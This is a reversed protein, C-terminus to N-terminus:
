IMGQMKMFALGVVVVLIVIFVLLKNIGGGGGKIKTVLGRVGRMTLSEHLMIDAEEASISHYPNFEELEMSELVGGDTLKYFVYYGKVRGYWNRETFIKHLVTDKNLQLSQENHTINLKMDDIPGLNYETLKSKEMVMAKVEKSKSKHVTKM